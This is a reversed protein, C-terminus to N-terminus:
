LLEEQLSLLRKENQAELCERSEDVRALQKQAESNSEQLKLNEQLLLTLKSSIAPLLMELNVETTPPKVIGCITQLCADLQPVRAFVDLVFIKNLNAQNENEARELATQLRLVEAQLYEVQASQKERVTSNDHEEHLTRRMSHLSQQSTLLMEELHSNHERLDRYQTQRESQLENVAELLSQRKNCLARVKTIIQDQIQDLSVDTSTLPEGALNYVQDRISKM